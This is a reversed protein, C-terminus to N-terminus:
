FPIDKFKDDETAAEGDLDDEDDGTPTSRMTFLDLSYTATTESIMNTSVAVQSVKLEAEDLLQNCREALSQGAEFEAIAQELSLNGAQLREVAAALRTFAQEFSLNSNNSNDNSKAAM